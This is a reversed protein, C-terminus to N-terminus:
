SDESSDMIEGDESPAAGDESGTADKGAVKVLQLLSAASARCSGKLIIACEHSSFDKVQFSNDQVKFIISPGM